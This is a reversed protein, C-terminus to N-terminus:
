EGGDLGLCDHVVDEIQREGIFENFEDSDMPEPLHLLARREFELREMLPGSEGENIKAYSFETKEKGKFLHIAGEDDEAVTAYKSATM